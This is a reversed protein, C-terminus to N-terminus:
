CSRPPTACPASPPRRGICGPRSQRRCRRSPRRAPGGHSAPRRPPPAMRRGRVRITPITQTAIWGGSGEVQTRPLNVAEDAGDRYEDVFHMVGKVGTAFDRSYFGALAVRVGAEFTPAYDVDRRDSGARACLVALMGVQATAHAGAVRASPPPGVQEMRSRCGQLSAGIGKFMHKLPRYAAQPTHAAPGTGGAAAGSAVLSALGSLDSSLWGQHDVPLGTWDVFCEFPGGPLDQDLIPAAWDPRRSAEKYYRM